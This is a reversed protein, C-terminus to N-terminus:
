RTRTAARKQEIDALQQDIWDAPTRSTIIRRLTEM